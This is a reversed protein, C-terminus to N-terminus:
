LLYGKLTKTLIEISRSMARPSADLFTITTSFMTTFVAVGIIIYTIGLSKTYLDILQNSFVAAKNSFTEDPPICKLLRLM